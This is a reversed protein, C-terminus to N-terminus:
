LACSDMHIYVPSAISMSSVAPALTHMELAGASKLLMVEQESAMTEVVNLLNTHSFKCAHVFHMYM